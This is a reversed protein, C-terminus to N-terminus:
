ALDVLLSEIAKGIKARTVRQTEGDLEGKLYGREALANADDLDVQVQVVSIGLDKRQRRRRQRAAATRDRTIQAM